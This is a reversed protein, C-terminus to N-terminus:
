DISNWFAWDIDQFDLDFLSEADQESLFNLPNNPRGSIGAGNEHEDQIGDDLTPETRCEKLRRELSSVFDPTASLPGVTGKSQCTRWAAVVLDAAHLRRRDETLEFLSTMTAYLESLLAWMRQCKDSDNEHSAQVLVVM